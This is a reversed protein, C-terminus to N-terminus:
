FFKVQLLYQKLLVYFSTILHLPLKIHLNVRGLMVSGIQLNRVKKMSVFCVTFYKINRSHKYPNIFHFPFLSIDFNGRFVFNLRGHANQHHSPTTIPSNFITWPSSTLRRWKESSPWRPGPAHNGPWSSTLKILTIPTCMLMALPTFLNAPSWIRLM